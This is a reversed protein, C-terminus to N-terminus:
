KPRICNVLIFFLFFVENDKKNNNDFINKLILEQIVLYNKIVDAMNAFDFEFKKLKVIKENVIRYSNNLMMDNNKKNNYKIFSDEIESFEALFFIFFINVKM